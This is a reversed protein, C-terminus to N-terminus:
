SPVPRRRDAVMCPVSSAVDITEAPRDAREAGRAVRQAARRPAELAPWTLPAGDAIEAPGLGRSFAVGARPSTM